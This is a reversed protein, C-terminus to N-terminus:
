RPPPRNGQALSVLLRKFHGSTESKLDSELDREFLKQYASRIKMIDEGSRTSLIEILCREDTGVGQMANRLWTADRDPTDLM